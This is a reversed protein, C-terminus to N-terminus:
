ASRYLDILMQGIKLPNHVKEVYRRGELGIEELDGNMIAQKMVSHLEDPRSQIIPPRSFRESHFKLWPQRLFAIVPKRLAMAEIATLGYWGFLLNDVVIDAKEIISPMSRVPVNDVFTLDIQHGEDKLRKVAEMTYQVGKIDGRTEINGTVQLVRLVQSSTKERNESPSWLDLDVAAPVYVSERDFDSMDPFGTVIRHGHKREMLCQATTLQDNCGGTMGTKCVECLSPINKSFKSRLKSDRCGAHYFVIKKGLRKLIPLDKYRPFFPVGNSLGPFLSWGSYFHFVDYKRICELLFKAVKLHRFAFNIGCSRGKILPASLRLDRDWGELLWGSTSSDFILYDSTHGLKRQARSFAWPLGVLPIPGHLIRL